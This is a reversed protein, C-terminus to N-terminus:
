STLRQLRQLAAEIQEHSIDSNAPDVAEPALVVAEPAVPTNEAEALIDMFAPPEPQRSPETTLDALCSVGHAGASLLLTKGKASVVYLMGGAFSAGEEIYISSNLPTAIRRTVKAALKPLLVKLLVFVIGLALLMQFLPMLGIGSAGASSTAIDRKTGAFTEQAVVGLPLATLLGMLGHRVIM